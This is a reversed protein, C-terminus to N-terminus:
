DDGLAEKVVRCVELVEETTMGAFIPLSLGCDAFEEANPFSRGYWSYRKYCTIQHLPVPYHYGFGIRAQQLASALKERKRTLVVFLHYVHSGDIPGGQLRLSPISSLQEMYSRAVEIRAANWGRLHRLKIRLMAAQINDLRATYGDYHHVNKERQGHVRLARAIDMVEESDSCLAGADGLAGLPKTPYFSFAAALGVSGAVRGGMEAGHAQAADELIFLDYRSRIEDLEAPPVMMGYLHVPIVCRARELEDRALELDLLGSPTVDVIVPEAGAHIVAELTAVFTMAPLVVRDGQGIGIARLGVLLADYGSSLGIAHKTGAVEAFENELSVVESGDIYANEKLLARFRRVFEDELLDHIRALDVFPVSM